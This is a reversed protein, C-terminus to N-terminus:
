GREGREGDRQFCREWVVGGRGNDYVRVATPVASANIRTLPGGFLRAMWAHCHGIRSCRLDMRGIYTANAHAAGFRRQVAQPLRAWGTAGVLAPLDLPTARSKSTARWRAPLLNSIAPM